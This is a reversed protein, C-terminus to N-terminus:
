ASEKVTKVPQKKRFHSVITQAQRYRENSEAIELELTRNRKALNSNSVKLRNYRIQLDQFTQMAEALKAKLKDIFVAARANNKLGIEARSKYTKIEKELGTIVIEREKAEVGKRYLKAEYGYKKNVLVKAMRDVVFMILVALIIVLLVTSIDFSLEISGNM